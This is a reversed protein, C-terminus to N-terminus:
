GNNSEKQEETIRHIAAAIFEKLYVRMYQAQQDPTSLIKNLTALEAHIKPMWNLRDRLDMLLAIPIEAINVSTESPGGVTWIRDKTKDRGHEFASM